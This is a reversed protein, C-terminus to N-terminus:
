AATRALLRSLAALACYTIAEDWSNLSAGGLPRRRIIAYNVMIISLFSFASSLQTSIRVLSFSGHLISLMTIAVILAVSRLKCRQLVSRSAHDVRRSLNM